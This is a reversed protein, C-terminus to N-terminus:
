SLCIHSHVHHLHLQTHATKDKWKSTAEGTGTESAIEASCKRIWTAFQSNSPDLEAGKEFALKAAEFEDLAFLSM